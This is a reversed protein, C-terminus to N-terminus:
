EYKDFSLFYKILINQYFKIIFGDDNKNKNSNKKNNIYNVNVNKIIRM